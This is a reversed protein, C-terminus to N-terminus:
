SLRVRKRGGGWSGPRGDFRGAIEFGCRACRNGKLGWEGIV